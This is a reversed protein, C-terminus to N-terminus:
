TDLLEEIYPVITSGDRINEAEQAIQDQVDQPIVDEFAYYPALESGGTAFTFRYLEGEITGDRTKEILTLFPTYSTWVVSTLIVEPAYDYQDTVVGIAYVGKETCADLAGLQGGTFAPHLVDVGDAIMSLAMEYAKAVDYWSGTFRVDITIDENISRAGLIFGNANINTSPYSFGHMFGVKDTQTMLAALMGALYSPEENGFEYGALNDRLM